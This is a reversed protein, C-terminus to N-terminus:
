EGPLIGWHMKSRLINFFCDTNKGPLLLKSKYESKRVYITAPKTLETHVQADASMYIYKSKNNVVIKIHKDDPVVIPRIALSHSSIPSIVFANVWPTLIPGGTSLNYATSGTPTAIILGDALFDNIKIDEVYVSLFVPNSIAGRKIVIDNLAYFVKTPDDIADVAKLMIREEIRFDGELISSLDNELFSASLQALFGLNGSNIGLLPIEKSAFLRAASLLTGDGGVIINLDQKNDEPYEFSNDVIERVFFKINYMKIVNSITDVIELSKEHLSNYFIAIHNFSM